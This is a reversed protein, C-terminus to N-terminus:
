SINIIACFFHKLIKFLIYAFFISYAGDVPMFLYFHQFSDRFMSSQRRDRYIKFSESKGM